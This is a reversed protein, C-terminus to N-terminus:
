QSKPTRTLSLRFKSFLNLHQLAYFRQKHKKRRAVKYFDDDNDELEKRIKFVFPRSVKLFQAIQLDSHEGQSVFIVVHRKM